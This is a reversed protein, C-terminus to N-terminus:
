CGWVGSVGLLFIHFYVRENQKEVDGKRGAPLVGVYHKPELLTVSGIERDATRYIM